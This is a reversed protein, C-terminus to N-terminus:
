SGGLAKRYSEITLRACEQWRFQKAKALGKESSEKRWDGDSSAKRLAAEWAEIDQPPLILGAGEAVEPLSSVNSSIVPTGCAMAELVPLGFGEFVSPYVFAEASNYWLAIEDSPVFGITQIDDALKHREIAEFIPETLWGKGGALFLPLRENPALRAYAEILTVLNKRPELTGLFFWFREPLNKAQRFAEVTEKPLVKYIAPDHALPTVDIKDAEIGLLEVLDAKTSHSIALIRRAKQCTQKTFAQLYLQRARTLREPYRLFTLDYITVVMPKNLLLPAVFAGAHYLDFKGLQFPQIGQEWLIRKLPSETEFAAQVTKIGKYQAENGGGLMATFEWEPAAQPLHILLQHLYNHIGASRYGAQKSLLHANIGIHTM